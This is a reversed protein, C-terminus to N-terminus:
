RREHNLVIRTDAQGCLEGAEDADVIEDQMILALPLVTSIKACRAHKLYKHTSVLLRFSVALFSHANDILGSSAQCTCCDAFSILLGLASM